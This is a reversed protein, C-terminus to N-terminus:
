LKTSKESRSAPHFQQQQSRQRYCGSCLNGTERSGYFDCGPTACKPNAERRVPTNDYDPSPSHPRPASSVPPPAVSGVSLSQQRDSQRLVQLTTPPPPMTTPTPSSPHTPTYFKSKGCKYIEDGPATATTTTTTSSPLGTPAKQRGPFTNYGSPQGQGRSPRPRELTGSQQQWQQQSACADCLSINAVALNNCGPTRCLGKPPVAALSHLAVRSRQQAGGVEEGRQRKLEQERWFQREATKLYNEVFEDRTENSECTLRACPVLEENEEGGGGTTTTTALATIVKTSHSLGGGVSVLSDQGGGGGGKAGAKSPALNNGLHKLKKGVTKGLSGFQKAMVGGPKGDKRKEKVLASNISGGGDDSGSSSQRSTVGQGGILVHDPSLHVIDMYDKLLNLKDQLCPESAAMKNSPGGWEYQPGPDYCFHLPLLKLEPDVVPIALPVSVDHHSDGGSGHQMPVLASFHAADYTLLLPSPCCLCRACELPLYIGGFPIPALADGNADRLITDAVVVIPRQLVHALVFVHFEELSEYVVAETCSSSSTLPSDCCSNVNVTSDPGSRPSPSALHLINEWEAKWEAESFVLGSQLNVQTQQWRWRRYLKDKFLSSTLTDLLANRLTLLRDHIGWMSLSAAHLLCNGDGTTAMPFLRQCLGHHVWWNLRGASELSNLTSSEILDKVLYARFDDPYLSFDPLSFTHFMHSHNDEKIDQLVSSRAAVVLVENETISSFGRKLRPQADPHHSTPSPHGTPTTTQSLPKNSSSSILKPEPMMKDELSIRALTTTPPHALTMSQSQYQSRGGDLRVPIVREEQAKVPPLRVTLGQMPLVQPGPDGAVLVRGGARVGRTDLSVAPGIGGEMGGRSPAAGGGRPGEQYPYGPPPVTPKPRSSSICMQEAEKYSAPLKWRNRMLIERALEDTSGTNSRFERVLHEKEDFSPMSFLWNEHQSGVFLIGKQRHALHHIIRSRHCM